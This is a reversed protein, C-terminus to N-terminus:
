LPSELHKFVPPKSVKFYKQSIKKSNKSTNTKGIKAGGIALYGGTKVRRAGGIAFM